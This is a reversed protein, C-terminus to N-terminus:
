QHSVGVNYINNRCFDVLWSWDNPLKQRILEYAESYIQNSITEARVGYRDLFICAELLDALKVLFAENTDPKFTSEQLGKLKKYPTPLDGSIAEDIDHTIALELAKSKSVYLGRKDFEEVLILVIASVRYTHDGVTQPKFKDIIAWRPVHSLIFLKKLRDQDM